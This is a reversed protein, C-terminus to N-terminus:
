GDGSTRAARLAARTAPLPSPDDAPVASVRRSELVNESARGDLASGGVPGDSSRDDDPGEDDPGEGAPTTGPLPGLSAHSGVALAAIATTIPIALVLGISGVLTRVVEHAIEGSTLTEGLSMDILSVMLLMPLAAGLYAFAITYVTSAIHDRGIRMGRVFLERRNMTPSAARLEWVSSAQTITVDNLVGLGALVIGCVAIGRIDVDPAYAPLALAYEDSLGFINAADVAWGALAATIVLGIMTGLMAASTRATFGHALYLVIFMVVSATVLAVGIPNTGVLLAPLTFFVVVGFSILLGAISALGRWGAVAIVVVLYAAALLGIPLDRTYDMFVYESGSAAAQPIHLIKLTSGVDVGLALYDPPFMVQVQEGTDDLTVPVLNGEPEGTVVGYLKGATDATTDITGREPAGHPWLLVMGVVTLLLAPILFSALIVRVRRSSRPAPGHGHAHVHLDPTRDAAAHAVGDANKSTRALDRGSRRSRTGRPQPRESRARHTRSDNEPQSM